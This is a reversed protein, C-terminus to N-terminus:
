VVMCNLKSKFHNLPMKLRKDQIYIVMSIKYKGQIFIGNLYWHKKKNGNDDIGDIHDIMLHTQGYSIYEQLVSIKILEVM